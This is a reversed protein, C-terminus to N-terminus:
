DVIKGCLYFEGSIVGGVKLENNILEPDAVVDIIGGLTEIKIWHFKKSSLENEYEKFDLIKGNIIATPFVEDERGSETSPFLGSPIFSKVAFNVDGEQNLHYDDEDLYIDLYHAFASLRINKICPLNDNDISSLDICDFVFPYDGDELTDDQPNAWGYFLGEFDNYQPTKIKNILAVKFNSEGDYIPSVGEIEDKQNIQIWLECGTHSTWKLFHYKTSAIKESLGIVQELLNLLEDDSEVPMGITSFHSVM